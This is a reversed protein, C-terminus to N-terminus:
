LSFVWVEMKEPMDDKQIYIENGVASWEVDRKDLFNEVPDLRLSLGGVGYHMPVVVKPEICDVVRWADSADITYHGGVPLFLIDAGYLAACLDSDPKHGLDGAHVVRIGETTISFIVINGRKKGNEDDHFANFTKIEYGDLSCECAERVIKSEEKQVIRYQNHDFHDHTILIIDGKEDPTKLGISHGDHPDIIMTTGSNNKIRFCSHGLWRIAVM